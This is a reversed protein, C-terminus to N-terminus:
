VGGKLKIKDKKSPSLDTKASKPKEINRTMTLLRAIEKKISKRKTVNKLLEIKLDKIKKEIEKNTLKKNEVM